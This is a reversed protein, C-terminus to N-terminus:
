SYTRKLYRTAVMDADLGMSQAYTKVFSKLFMRSPTKDFEDDEIARLYILRVKTIEAIVELSVGLEERIKRLDQGSLVDHTLIEQILPNSSVMARLENRIRLPASSTFHKSGSICRLIKRDRTPRMGEQLIGCEILSRDYRSRKGEDILISYAEDLKALIEQREEESFFSYSALSDENYLQSMEKYAHIIEFSSADSDVGLLAYFNKETLRKM